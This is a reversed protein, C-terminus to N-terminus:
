KIEKLKKITEEIWAKDHGNWMVIEKLWKIIAKEKKSPKYIIPKVNLKKPYKHKLMHYEQWSDPSLIRGAKIDTEMEKLRKINQAKTEALQQKLTM